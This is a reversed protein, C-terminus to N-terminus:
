GREGTAAGSISRRRYRVSTPYHAMSRALQSSTDREENPTVTGPTTYGSGSASVLGPYPPIYYSGPRQLAFYGGGSNGCNGSNSNGLAGSDPDDVSANLLGNQHLASSTPLTRMPQRTQTHSYPQPTMFPALRPVSGLVSHAFTQDPRNSLALFLGAGSGPGARSNITPLSSTTKSRQHHRRGPRQQVQHLRSSTAPELAHFYSKLRPSAPSNVKSTTNSGLTIVQSPLELRENLSLWAREDADMDNEGSASAVSSSSASSTPKENRTHTKHWKSPDFYPRWGGVGEFDRSEDGSIPLGTFPTSPLNHAEAMNRAYIKKNRSALDGHTSAVPWSSITDDNRRPQILGFSSNRRSLGHIPTSPESPAFTLLSSSSTPLAFINALLGYGLEAYVVALRIFLTILAFSITIWASFLLPISVLGILPLALLTKVVAYM